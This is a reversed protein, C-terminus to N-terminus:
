RAISAAGTKRCIRETLLIQSTATDDTEPEDTEPSWNYDVSTRYGRCINFFCLVPHSLTFCSCFCVAHKCRNRLDFVYACSNACAVALLNEDERCFDVGCVAAGGAPHLVTSGGRLTRDHWLRVVGNDAGSATLNPRLM